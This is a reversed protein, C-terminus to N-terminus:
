VHQRSQFSTRSFRDQLSPAPSMQRALRAQTRRWNAGERLPHHICSICVASARIFVTCQHWLLGRHQQAEHPLHHRGRSTLEAAVSHAALMIWMTTAECVLMYQARMCLGSVPQAAAPVSVPVSASRLPLAPESSSCCAWSVGCCRAAERTHSAHALAADARKIARCPRRSMHVANSSCLGVIPSPAHEGSCPASLRLQPKGCM